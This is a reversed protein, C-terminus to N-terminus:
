LVCEKDMDCQKRKDLREREPVDENYRWRTLRSLATMYLVPFSYRFRFPRDVFSILFSLSRLREKWETTM